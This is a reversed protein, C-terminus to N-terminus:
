LVEVIERPSVPLRARGREARKGKADERRPLARRVKACVEVITSAVPDRAGGGEIIGMMSHQQRDLQRRPCANEISVRSV